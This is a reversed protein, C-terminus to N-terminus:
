GGAGTALVYREASAEPPCCWANAGGGSLLV